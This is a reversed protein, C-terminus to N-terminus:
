QKLFVFTKGDYGSLKVYGKKHDNTYSTLTATCVVKGEQMFTFTAWYGVEKWDYKKVTFTGNGNIVLGRGSCTGDNNLAVTTAPLDYLDGMPYLLNDRSGEYYNEAKWTGEFESDMDGADDKSCSTLGVSAAMLAAAM